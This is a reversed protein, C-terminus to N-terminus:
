RSSTRVRKTTPTSRASRPPIQGARQLMQLRRYIFRRRAGPKKLLYDLDGTAGLRGDIYDVLNPHEYRVDEDSHWLRAYRRITRDHTAADKAIKAGRGRGGKTSVAQALEARLASNSAYLGALVADHAAMIAHEHGPSLNARVQRLLALVMMADKARAKGANNRASRAKGARDRATTRTPWPLADEGSLIRYIQAPDTSCRLKTLITREAEEIRRLVGDLLSWEVQWREFEERTSFPSRSV